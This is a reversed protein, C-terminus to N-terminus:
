VINNQKGVLKNFVKTMIIKTRKKDDKNATGNLVVSGPAFNINTASKENQVPINYEHWNESTKPKSIPVPTKPTQSPLANARETIRAFLSVSKSFSLTANNFIATQERKRIAPEEIAIRSGGRLDQLGPVTDGKFFAKAQQQEFMNSFEDKFVDVVEGGRRVFNSFDVDGSLVDGIRKAMEVGHEKAINFLKISQSGIESQLRKEKSLAQELELQRQVKDITQEEISLQKVLASTSKLIESTLAGEAQLRSITNNLISKAITSKTQLTTKNKEDAKAQKEKEETILVEENKLKVLVDLSKQLTTRDWEPEININNLRTEIGAIVRDLEAGSLEGELAKSLTEGFQKAASQFNDFAQQAEKVESSLKIVSLVAESTGVSAMGLTIRFLDGLTKVTTGVARLAEGWVKADDIIKGQVEVLSILTERFDDGGFVASVFTKGIEKNLNTFRAALRHVTANQIDFEENLKNVDGTVEINKQLETRLAILARVVESSRVGGFIEKIINTTPGLAGTARQLSELEGIVKSLVGFTTDLEPNVRIGLTGALKDLNGLLKQISTRLLRGGRNRLGATSLTALLAITEQTTINTTKATGAFKELDNTFEGLEFANTKWLEATQAMAEAIQDGASKAGASRDVLVRLSRAFANATETANGFMLVATKVAFTAGKWATEYDFGVTAFKQFSHVIEEISVGTELSLERAAKKLKKYNVEISTTTGSINRKAKQFAKDQDVIAKTGNKFTSTIGTMAGRLVLWLPITLAARKALRSINQGLSVTNKDLDKYATTTRAVGKSNVKTTKTIQVLSGDLRKFTQATKTSTNALDTLGKKAVTTKISGLSQGVKKFGKSMDQGVNKSFRKNLSSLERLKRKVDKIDAIYSIVKRDASSAM